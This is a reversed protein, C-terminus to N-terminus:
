EGTALPTRDPSYDITANIPFTETIDLRSPQPISYDAVGPAVAGCGGNPYCYVAGNASAVTQGTPSFTIENTARHRPSSRGTTRRGSRTTQMIVNPAAKCLTLGALPWSKAM